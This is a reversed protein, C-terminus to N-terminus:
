TPIMIASARHWSMSCCRAVVNRVQCEAHLQTVSQPEEQPSDVRRCADYGGGVQQQLVANREQAAHLQATLDAAQAELLQSKEQLTRVQSSAEPATIMRAHSHSFHQARTVELLQELEQIRNQQLSQKSMLSRVEAHTENLRANAIHLQSDLSAVERQLADRSRETEYRIGQLHSAKLDCDFSCVRLAVTVVPWCDCNSNSSAGVCWVCHTCRAATAVFDSCAQTAQMQELVRNRDRALDEAEGKAGQLERALADGNRELAQIDVVYQQM